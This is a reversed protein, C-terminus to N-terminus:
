KPKPQEMFYETFDSCRGDGDFRTIFVNHYTKDVSARDETLYDSTGTAVCADGDCAVATYSARWSGEADRNDVWDTVIADRGRVPEADWPHYRYTADASFLDGIAAADYSQWAAVYRDLWGQFLRKDM